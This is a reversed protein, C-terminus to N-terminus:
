PRPSQHDREPVVKHGDVPTLSHIEGTLNDGDEDQAALSAEMQLEVADDRLPIDNDTPPTSLAALRPQLKEDRTDPVAPTTILLSDTPAEAPSRTCVIWKIIQRVTFIVEVSPALLFAAVLLTGYNDETLADKKLDTRLAISILLTLCLQAQAVTKLFNDIPQKYPWTFLM